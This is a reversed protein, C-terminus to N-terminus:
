HELAAAGAAEPAVGRARRVLRAVGNSLDDLLPYITPLFLLSVV